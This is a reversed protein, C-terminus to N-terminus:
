SQKQIVDKVVRYVLGHKICMLMFRKSDTVRFEQTAHTDYDSHLASFLILRGYRWIVVPEIGLEHREQELEEPSAMMNM